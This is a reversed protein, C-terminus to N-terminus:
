ASVLRRAVWAAVGGGISGASAGAPSDASGLLLRAIEAWAWAPPAGDVEPCRGWLVQWGNRPAREASTGAGFRGRAAEAACSRLIALERDRGVCVGAAGVAGALAPAGPPFWEASTFAAGAPGALPPAAPTPAAEPASARWR